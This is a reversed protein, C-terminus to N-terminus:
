GFLFVGDFDLLVELLDDWAVAPDLEGVFEDVVAALDAYGALGAAGIARQFLEAVGGVFGPCRM